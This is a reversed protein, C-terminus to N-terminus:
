GCRPHPIYELVYEHTHECVDLSVDVSIGCLQQTECQSVCLMTRVVVAIHCIKNRSSPVISTVVPSPPTAPSGLLTARSRHTCIIYCTRREIQSEVLFRRGLIHAIFIQTITVDRIYM